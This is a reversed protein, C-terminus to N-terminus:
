RNGIGHSREMKWIERFKGFLGAFKLHTWTVEIIKAIFGNSGIFNWLNKRIGMFISARNGCNSTLDLCDMLIGARFHCLHLWGTYNTLSCRDQHMHVNISKFKSWSMKLIKWAICEMVIWLKVGKSGKDTWNANRTEHHAFARM